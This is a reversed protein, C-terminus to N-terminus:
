ESAGAIANIAVEVPVGDPLREPANLIDIKAMYSLRGRDHETLAYYPTFAPESAVWRVRGELAEDLGDVFVSASAGPTVHVRVTEPIFVRAYPQEGSLLVMVPQGQVPREGIEYLRTDTMGDVPARISHREVDVQALDRRAEAQHLSQEAQALEELTTGALMEELQARRQELTSVASDYMAKARDLAEPSALGRAHVEQAREYEATRFDLEREAGEVAARAARIQESRPGRVLEDLRAQAQDLAAVAEALRAAAREDNQRALLQGASVWEGEAVAIEVIPESVEATLEIRDSALEGVLRDSADNAGCASLLAAVLLTLAPKKM